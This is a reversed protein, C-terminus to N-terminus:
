LKKGKYYIVTVAVHRSFFYQPFLNSLHLTLSTNYTSLLSPSPSPSLSTLSIKLPFVTLTLCFSLTYMCLPAQLLPSPPSPPTVRPMILLTYRATNTPFSVTRPTFPSTNTYSRTSQTCTAPTTYLSLSLHKNILRQSTDEYYGKITM